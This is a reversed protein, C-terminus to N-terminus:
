GVWKPVKRERSLNCPMCLVRLNYETDPGGDRYRIIHDLSLNDKAGCWVCQYGDRAMVKERVKRPIKPRYNPNQHKRWEHFQYYDGCQEWFGADILRQIQKKTGMRRALATPIQGNTKYHACWAGARAWLGIAAMPLQETKRHAWFQDHVKFSPM